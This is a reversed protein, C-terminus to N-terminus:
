PKGTKAAAEDLKKLYKAPDAKFRALCKRCCLRVLRDPQGAEKHVYEVIQGADLHEGSVICTQLPYVKRAQAPAPAGAPTAPTAALLGGAPVLLLFLIFRRFLSSTNM